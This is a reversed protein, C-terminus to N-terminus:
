NPEFLSGARWSYEADASRNRGGSISSHDGSATNDVGGTVSSGDGSATNASGGSVSAGHGSATNGGGGSISALLGSAENSEGGSVSATEGTARNSIGGGVSSWEGSAINVQGGSVSSAHGEAKNSGGGSVSSGDGEATNGDGGSVSSGHGKAKNNGGGSVSSWDGVVTNNLGVVIGGFRTFEHDDGVVLMHSGSRVAPFGPTSEANYGIIVNGLANPEGDTTGTGNVVHLNAGTITIDDGDRSVHTLLDELEAVRAELPAVTDAHAVPLYVVHDDQAFAGRVLDLGGYVALGVVATRFVTAITARLMQSLGSSTM